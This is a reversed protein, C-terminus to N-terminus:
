GLLVVIFEMGIGGFFTWRMGLPATFFLAGVRAIRSSSGALPGPGVEFAFVPMWEDRMTSSLYQLYGQIAIEVV